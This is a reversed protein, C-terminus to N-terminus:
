VTEVLLGSYGADAAYGWSRKAADAAAGGGGGGGPTWMYGCLYYHKGALKRVGANCHRALRVSRRKDDRGSSTM